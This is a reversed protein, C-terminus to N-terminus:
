PQNRSLLTVEIVQNGSPDTSILGTTFVCNTLALSHGADNAPEIVGVVTGGGNLSVRVFVPGGAIPAAAAKPNGYTVTVTGQEIVDCLEGPAYYGLTAPTGPNPSYNLLTKVERVAFGVFAGNGQAMTPTGGGVIFGALQSYNGGLSAQAGTGNMVVVDGFNINATDAPTVLRAAINLGGTNRAYTGPYGLYEQTGIATGPM